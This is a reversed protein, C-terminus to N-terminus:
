HRRRSRAIRFTSASSLSPRATGVAVIQDAELHRRHCTSQPPCRRGSNGPSRCPASREEEVPQRLHNQLGRLIGALDLNLRELFAPIPRFQRRCLEGDLRLSHLSSRRNLALSYSIPFLSYPRHLEQGPQRAIKMQKRHAPPATGPARPRHYVRFTPRQDAGGNQVSASTGMDPWEFHAVILCLFPASSALRPLINVRRM